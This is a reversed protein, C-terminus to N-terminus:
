RDQTLANTATATVPSPMQQLVRLLAQRQHSPVTNLLDLTSRGNMMAESLARLTQANVRGSMASLARNVITIKASLPNPIQPTQRAEGLIDNLRNTGASGQVGMTADRRLENLVNNAVDMQPASLHDEIKGGISVGSRKVVRETGTTMANAFPGVREGGTVPNRLVGQLDTLINSQNVPVSMQAFAARGKDYAALGNNKLWTLYEDKTANIGEVAGKAATTRTIGSAADDLEVKVLHAGQGTLNGAGDYMAVGKDAAVKEASAVASRLSPRELLAVGQSDMATTLPAVISADAQQYFPKSAATRAAEAAKLDPTVAQLSADRAAEQRLAIDGFQDPMQSAARRQMAQFTPANVGAGAVAQGATEGPASRGLAASIQALKDGSIERLIKGAKVQVARTGTKDLVWGAARMAAPIVIRGGGEMAAGAAVDQAASMAQQGLPQQPKSGLYTDGLEMLQKAGAYGLGSGVMAGSVPNAIVTPSAVTGAAGGLIGGGVMGVGEVVPAIYPRAKQWLNQEPPPAEVPTAAPARGGDLATVKKGFETEARQHVQDPSVDDPANQYVHTTGDGFTVTINRPM